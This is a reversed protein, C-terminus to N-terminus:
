VAANIVTGARLFVLRSMHGRRDCAGYDNPCSTALLIFFSSKFPPTYLATALWPCDVPDM